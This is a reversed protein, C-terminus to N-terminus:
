RSYIMKKKKKRPYLNSIRPLLLFYLMWLIVNITTFKTIYLEALVPLYTPYKLMSTSFSWCPRTDGRM